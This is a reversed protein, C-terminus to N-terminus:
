EPLKVEGNKKSVLVAHELYFDPYPAYSPYNDKVIYYYNGKLTVHVTPKTGVNKYATREEMRLEFYKDLYPKAKNIAEEVSVPNEPFNDFKDKSWEAGYYVENVIGGCGTIIVPLTILGFIIIYNKFKM